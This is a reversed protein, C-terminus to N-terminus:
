SGADEWRQSVDGSGMSALVDPTRWALHQGSDVAVIQGTVSRARALYDVADAVAELSVPRALPVQAVEAEFREPGELENPLVPGPAVANVRIHPALEQALMRTATGLAAKSLTYSLYLPKPSLVRQDLLNIISADQDTRAQAAFDKALMLPARLNIAQSREFLAPDFTALTDGEFISANNVLLDIPGFVRAANVLLEGVEQINALDAIVRSVSVKERQLRTVLANADGESRASTHLVVSYGRQALREVIAAGIRRAGGTVLAVRQGFASM